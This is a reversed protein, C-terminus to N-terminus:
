GASAVTEEMEGTAGGTAYRAVSGDPNMWVTLRRRTASPSRTVSVADIRDGVRTYSEVATTDNGLRVVFAGSEDGGSADACAVLSAALVAALAAFPITRMSKM